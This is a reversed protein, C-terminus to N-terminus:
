RERVSRAAVEQKADLLFMPDRDRKGADLDVVDIGMLQPKVLDQSGSDFRANRRNGDPCHLHGLAPEHKEDPDRSAPDTRM